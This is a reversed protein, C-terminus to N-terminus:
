LYLNLNKELDDTTKRLRRQNHKFSVCTLTLFSLRTLGSATGWRRKQQNRSHRNWKKRLTPLFATTSTSHSRSETFLLFVTLQDTVGRQGCMKASKSKELFVEQSNLRQAMWRWSGDELCRLFVKTKRSRRRKKSKMLCSTALFKTVQVFLNHNWWSVHHLKNLPKMKVILIVMSASELMKCLVRTSTLSSFIFCRSQPQGFVERKVSHVTRCTDRTSFSWLSNAPESGKETVAM